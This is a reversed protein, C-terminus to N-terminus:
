KKTTNTKDYQKELRGNQKRDRETQENARKRYRM